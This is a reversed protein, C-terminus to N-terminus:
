KLLVMFIVSIVVLYMSFFHLLDGWKIKETSGQNSFDVRGNQYLFLGVGIGYLILIRSFRWFEGYGREFIGTLDFIGLGLSLILLIFGSWYSAANRIKGKNTAMCGIASSTVYVMPLGFCFIGFLIKQIMYGRDIM